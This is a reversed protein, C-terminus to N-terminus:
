RRKERKRLAEEYRKQFGGIKKDKNKLKNKELKNRIKDENVMQRVLLQQAIALINSVFYYFTLASSYSNLFFLLMVPMFYQVVKFQAPTNGMQEKNMLTFLLTSAAMLLTFLSIHDGYFPINFPLDAISDYSSLDNAWLFGQQRFDIINPFFSFMALLIPMQLLLPICGSLPNIGARQYLQMTEMQQKKMDGPYLKKIGDIEPKLVRMRAMGIYSRYTLPLLLLRIVVVMLIISGGYSQFTQISWYFISLSLVRNIWGMLTWGLYVNEKFDKDIHKIQKLDNPGIYLRYALPQNDQLPLWSDVSTSRVYDSAEEKEITLTSEAPFDHIFGVLFFKAKLAVWHMDGVKREKRKGGTSLGEKEGESFYNLSTKLALDKKDKEMQTVKQHWRLRMRASEVYAGLGKLSQAIVYGEGSITYERLLTAGDGLIAKFALRLTDEKRVRVTGQTVSTFYLTHLAVRRGRYFFIEEIESQQEDWLVLAEEKYTKYHVLEARNLRGGRTSFELHMDETLVEISRDEGVHSVYGFPNDKTISDLEQATYKEISPTQQISDKSESRAPASSSDKPSQSPKPPSFYFLYVVLM